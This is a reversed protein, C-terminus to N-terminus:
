SLDLLLGMQVLIIDMLYFSDFLIDSDKHCIIQHKKKQTTM